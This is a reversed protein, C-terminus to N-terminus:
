ISESKLCRFTHPLSVATWASDDFTPEAAGPPDAKIFKWDPHFNLTTAPATFAIGLILILRAM